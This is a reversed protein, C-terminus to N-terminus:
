RGAERTRRDIMTQRRLVPEPWKSKIFALVAWIERDTLQGEFPPMTSKFGPPVNRQGGFKTVEFLQRDPHHWTHGSADHPPARLSGDPLRVRWNPQGELNKGHCEACYRAYAPEGLAVLEADMPDAGDIGGESTMQQFVAVGLAAVAIPALVLVRKRWPTDTRDAM